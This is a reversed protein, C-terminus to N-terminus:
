AGSDHKLVIHANYYFGTAIFIMLSIVMSIVISSIIYIVISIVNSMATDAYVYVDGYSYFSYIRSEM